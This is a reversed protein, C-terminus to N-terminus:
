YLSCKLQIDSASKQVGYCEGVMKTSGTDNVQKLSKVADGLEILKGNVQSQSIMLRGFSGVVEDSFNGLAKEMAVSRVKLSYVDFVMQRRADRKEIGKVLVFSVLLISFLLLVVIMSTAFGRKEEMM